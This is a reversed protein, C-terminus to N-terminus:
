RAGYLCIALIATERYLLTVELTMGEYAVSVRGADPFYNVIRWARPNGKLGTGAAKSAAEKACWLGLLIATDTRGMLSLDQEDFASRLWDSTQHANIHELDIGIRTEAAVAIAEGGSHSISICPIAGRRELEPCRVLPQGLEGAVIEIDVPALELKFAQGAWQRVADKAAVRGMLWETRRVGKEPLRYWEIREEENLVLHALARKWVGMGQELSAAKQSDIRRCILGAEEQLWPDSFFTDVTQPRILKSIYADNYNRFQFGELRAVVQNSQDLIDLTAETTANATARMVGRCVVKNGSRPPKGYQRFSAAHFPFIASDRAGKEIRWLAVLQGTSDLLGGPIQFAPSRMESFFKSTDSVELEAEIGEADWGRVHKIDQFCPGHFAFQQYFEAATVAESVPRSAKGPLPHPPAPYEDALRVIGEFSLHRQGNPKAGLDFLQVHVDQAGGVEEQADRKLALVGVTLSGHELMLWRHGRINYIEIVSKNGGLLYCAAEALMEMSMTFPIVPLPTTRRHNHSPAQRGLTHDALFPDTQLDFRRQYYLRESDLEVIQGLLPWDESGARSHMRSAAAVVHGSTEEVVSMAGPVAFMSSMVRTQSSLFQQMLEFHGRLIELRVDPQHTYGDDVNHTQAAGGAGNGTSVTSGGDAMINDPELQIQFPDDAQSAGVVCAPAHAAMAVASSNPAFLPQEVKITPLAPTLEVTRVDRFKFLYSLDIDMGEVYLKALLRQLQELGPLRQMNSAIALHERGRLTDDVFATLTNNPGVEIFTRVGESYLNEITQRFRVQSSWQRIALTRIAEPSEPFPQTTVCSYILTHGPGLDMHDYVHRIDEEQSEYLPTHYARDFPLRLSIGGARAIQKIVDEIDDESGFLVIQHPCNDMALHIRGDSAAILDEFFKAELGSVGLFVGKPLHSTSVADDHVTFRQLLGFLERNTKFRMTGSATLAANEGNSHGLMVDCRVGLSHLLEHLALTATLGGQAGGRMGHLNRTMARREEESLGTPPPFILRSPVPGSAEDFIEDLMDFWDRVPPLHQCLDALMGPYYSGYGPFMFAIRSPIAQPNIEAYYVGARVQWHTRNSESLKEVALNLKAKLDDLDSAIIALRHRRAARGSLTFALNALPEHPHTSIFTQAETILSLLQERGEGSFYLLEMPWRGPLLGTEQTHPDVHEELIAHASLRGGSTYDQVAARRPIERNGHIWPRVETNLYFPTGELPLATDPNDSLTPPLIKYYLALATKILAAVGTTAQSDDMSPEVSGVACRPMLGKRTELLRALSQMATYAMLPFRTTEVLAVTDPDIVSESYAQRIASIAGDYDVDALEDASENEFICADKLVAYIRNGDRRADDLRKLVVMAGGDYRVPGAAPDRLSSAGPSLPADHTKSASDTYPPTYLHMGGALVVDYAQTHLEKIASEIPALSCSSAANIVVSRRMLGLQGAFHAAIERLGGGSSECTAIRSSRLQDGFSLIIATRDKDFSPGTYGADDFAERAIKLFAQLAKDTYPSAAESDSSRNFNGQPNAERPLPKIKDVISYWYDRLSVVGALSVSMGVIAIDTRKKHIM